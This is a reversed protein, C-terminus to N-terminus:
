FFFFVQDMVASRRPCLNVAAGVVLNRDPRRGTVRGSAADVRSVRRRPVLPLWYNPGRGYWAPFVRAACVGFLHNFNRWSRRGRAAARVRAGGPRAGALPRPAQASCDCQRGARSVQPLPSVIGQRPRALVPAEPRGCKAGTSLNVITGYRRVRGLLAAIICCRRGGWCITITTSVLGAIRRGAKGAALSRPKLQRSLARIAASCSTLAAACTRLACVEARVRCGRRLSGM